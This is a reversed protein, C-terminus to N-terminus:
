EEETEEEPEPATDQEDITTIKVPDSNVDEDKLDQESFVAEESRRKQIEELTSVKDYAQQIIDGQSNINSNAMWLNTLVNIVSLQLKPDESNADLIENAKRILDQIAQKSKQYEFPIVEKIHTQLERQSQERLFQVDLSITSPHLHLDRAIDSQSWGKSLKQLVIQRRWDIATRIFKIDESIKGHGDHNDDNM